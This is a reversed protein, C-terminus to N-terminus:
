RYPINTEVTPPKPPQALRVLGRILLIVVVLHLPIGLLASTIQVTFLGNVGGQRAAIVTGSASLLMSLAWVALSAIAWTLLPKYADPRNRRVVQAVVIVLAIQTALTVLSSLGYVISLWESYSATTM